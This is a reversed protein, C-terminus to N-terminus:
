FIIFMFISFNFPCFFSFRTTCGFFDKKFENLRSLTKSQVASQRFNNIGNWVIGKLETQSREFMLCKKMFRQLNQYIKKSSHIFNKLQNNQKFEPRYADKRCNEIIRGFMNLIERFENENPRM